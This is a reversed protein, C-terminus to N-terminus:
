RDAFSSEWNAADTRCRVRAIKTLESQFEQVTKTDIVAQPLANYVDVMGFISRKYLTLQFRVDLIHGYLQKDHGPRAYGFVDNFFPLLQQYVPHANGLVRKHILGLVGINRRLTPPAFNFKLFADSVTIGIEHLFHTQVSDFKALLYSAAHFLGGNHIEM